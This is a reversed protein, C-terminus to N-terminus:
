MSCMVETTGCL